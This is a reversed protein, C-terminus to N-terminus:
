AERHYHGSNLAKWLSYRGYPTSLQMQMHCQHVPAGALSLMDGGFEVPAQPHPGFAAAREGHPTIFNSMCNVARNQGATLLRLRVTATKGIGVKKPHNFMLGHWGQKKSLGRNRQCV